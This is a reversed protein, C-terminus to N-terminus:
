DIRLYPQIKRYISDNIIPIKRLDDLTQFKKHEKRYIMLAKTVEFPFYPHFLLEKFTIRNLDIKKISDKNVNIFDKIRSYRASDMGFVELIQTKDLYGRLRVRYNVIRKAFSSGIGRLRQLDFTDASNLEIFLVEPRIQPRNTTDYYSYSFRNNRGPYKKRKEQAEISDYFAVEKEFLTVENAFGSFDAPKQSIVYPALINATMLLFFITLLVYLGRQEKKNFTFYDKIIKTFRM